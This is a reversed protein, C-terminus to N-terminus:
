RKRHLRMGEGGYESGGVLEGPLVGTSLFVPIDGYIMFSVTNRRVLGTISGDYPRLETTGQIQIRGKVDVGGQELALTVATVATSARGLLAMSQSLTGEWVGSLDLVRAGSRALLRVVGERPADEAESLATAGNRSSANVDAGNALLIQVVDVNGKRAAHILPTKGDKDRADVHSGAALLIKSVESRGEAAAFHLATRMNRDTSNVNAGSTLLQQVKTAKGDRAAKRLDDNVDAAAVNANVSVLLACASLVILIQQIM